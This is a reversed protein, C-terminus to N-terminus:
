YIILPRAWINQSSHFILRVDSVPNGVSLYFHAFRNLKRAEQLGGHGNIEERNDLEVMGEDVEFFPLVGYAEVEAVVLKETKKLLVIADPGDATDLRCTVFGVVIKEM